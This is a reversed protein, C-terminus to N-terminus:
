KEKYEKCQHEKHTAKTHKKPTAGKIVRTVNRLSLYKKEPTYRSEKTEHIEKM